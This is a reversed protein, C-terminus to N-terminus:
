FKLLVKGGRVTHEVAEKIDAPKYTQAIPVNIKGALILGAAEAKAEKHRALYHPYYLWFGHINMGRFVLDVVNVSIGQGSMQGFVVIDGYSRVVKALTNTAEGGVIDLGLKINATGVAAKVQEPIEHSEVLVVDAGATLIENVVEKRRVIAVVKIGRGKAVAIIGRGM